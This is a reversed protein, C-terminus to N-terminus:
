YFYIEYLLNKCSHILLIWFIYLCATMLVCRKCFVTLKFAESRGTSVVVVVVVIVVIVDLDVIVFVVFNFIGSVDANSFM